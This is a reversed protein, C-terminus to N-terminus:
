SSTLICIQLNLISFGSTRWKAQSECSYNFPTKKEQSQCNQSFAHQRSRAFCVPWPASGVCAPGYAVDPQYKKGCSGSSGTSDNENDIFHTGPMRKYKPKHVYVRRITEQPECLVHPIMSPKIKGRELPCCHSNGKKPSFPHCFPHCFHHCFNTDWSYGM